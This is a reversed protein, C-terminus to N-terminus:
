DRLVFLINSIEITPPEIANYAKQITAALESTRYNQLAAMSEWVYVGGYVGEDVKIYYKQILGPLAAFEPKREHAIQLLEKEPLNTKVKVILIIAGETNTDM